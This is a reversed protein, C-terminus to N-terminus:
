LFIIPHTYRLLVMANSYAELFRYEESGEKVVM